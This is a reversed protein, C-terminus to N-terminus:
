QCNSTSSIHLNHFYRQYPLESNTKPASQTATKPTRDKTLIQLTGSIEITQKIVRSKDKNGALILSDNDFSTPERNDIFNDLSNARNDSGSTNKIAGENFYAQVRQPSILHLHQFSQPPKSETPSGQRKQTTAATQPVSHSIPSPSPATTTCRATKM